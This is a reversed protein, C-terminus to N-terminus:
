VRLGLGWFGVGQFGSGRSTRRWRGTQGSSVPPLQLLYRNQRATCYLKLQNDLERNGWQISTTNPVDADADDDDDDDDDLPAPAQLFLKAGRRALTMAVWPTKEVM